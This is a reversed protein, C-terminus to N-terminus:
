KFLFDPTEEQLLNIAKSAPATRPGQEHQGDCPPSALPATGDAASYKRKLLELREKFGSQQRKLVRKLLSSGGSKPTTPSRGPADRPTRPITIYRADLEDEEGGAVTAHAAPPTGPLNPGIFPSDGDADRHRSRITTLKERASRLMQEKAGAEAQSCAVRPQEEPRVFEFAVLLCDDQQLPDHRTPPEFFAADVAVHGEEGASSVCSAKLAGEWQGLSLNLEQTLTERLAALKTIRVLKDEIEGLISSVSPAGAGSLVRRCMEDLPLQQAALRAHLFSCLKGVDLVVGRSRPQFCLRLVESSHPVERLLRMVQSADALHKNGMSAQLHEFCRRSTALELCRSNLRDLHLSVQQLEDLRRVLLREMDGSQGGLHEGIARVAARKKAALSELTQQQRSVAQRWDAECRGAAEALVAHRELAESAAAALSRDGDGCACEVEGRVQEGCVVEVAVCTLEALFTDFKGTGPFEDLLSRRVQTRCIRFAERERKLEELIRFVTQRFEHCAFRDAVPWNTPQRAPSTSGKAGSSTRGDEAGANGDASTFRGQYGLQCLLFHLIEECAAKSTTRGFIHERSLPFPPSFHLIELNELVMDQM